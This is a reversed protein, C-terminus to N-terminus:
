SVSFDLSLSGSQAQASGTLTRQSPGSAVMWKSTEFAAAGTSGTLSMNAGLGKNQVSMLLEVKDGVNLSFTPACTVSLGSASCATSDGTAVDRLIASSISVQQVSSTDQTFQGQHGAYAAFLILFAFVIVVIVVFPVVILKEM